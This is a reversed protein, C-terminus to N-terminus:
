EDIEGDPYEPFILDLSDNTTGDDDEFSFYGVQPDHLDCNLDAVEGLAQAVLQREYDTKFKIIKNGAMHQVDLDVRRNDLVRLVCLITDGVVPRRRAAVGYEYAPRCLYIAQATNKSTREIKM